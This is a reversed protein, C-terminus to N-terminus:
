RGEGALIKDIQTELNQRYIQFCLKFYGRNDVNRIDANSSLYQAKFKKQSKFRKILQHFPLGDRKKARLLRTLYPANVIIILELQHFAESRHLLAANIVKPKGSGDHMWDSTLKHVAPHVVSELFALEDAKGFVLKGLAARNVTGDHNLISSGFHGTIQNKENEIVQHGLKDLDLTECGREELMKAVFNKGACYSGTLGILTYHKMNNNDPSFKKLEITRKM